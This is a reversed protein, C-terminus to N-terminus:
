FKSCKSVNNGQMFHRDLNVIGRCTITTIILLKITIDAFNYITSNYMKNVGRDGGGGVGSIVVIM